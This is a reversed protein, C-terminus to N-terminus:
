RQTQHCRLICYFCSDFYMLNLGCTNKKVVKVQQTKNKNNKAQWLCSLRFHLPFRLQCRKQLLLLHLILQLFCNFHMAFTTIELSNTIAQTWNELTNCEAESVTAATLGNNKQLNKLSGHVM